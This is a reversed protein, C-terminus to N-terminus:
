ATRSVTGQTTGADRRGNSAYGPAVFGGLLNAWRDRLKIATLLLRANQEQVTKLELARALLRHRASAFGTVGLGEAVPCLGELSLGESDLSRLISSRSKGLGEITAAAELMQNSVRDIRGFDSEILAAQEELAFALLRALSVEEQHLIELIEEFAAVRPDM